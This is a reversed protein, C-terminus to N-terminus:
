GVPRSERIFRAVEDALDVTITGQRVLSGMIDSLKLVSHVQVGHAALNDVGGQERDILVIAHSVTLGAERLRDVTTRTSGGSTVLDEIIVVSEGATWAGEIGRQLGYNKVEKRPYIMPVGSALSVATGIPLAAYPVGAIRDAPLADLIGAYSDAVASLLQPESVLLRLDIYIPSQIGSALTFEGFQVAGLAVLKASLDDVVAPATPAPKAESSTAAYSRRADNLEDRYRRAADGPDYALSIGRSVNVLLGLGDDRLGANLTAQVDGGQAGIGPVLFWAHPAVSRVSALSAPFTAGVVLGINPAWSVAGRAVHIYLPQNAERDLTQWDSIELEQFDSSGPNSTRCLVFLGKNPYALFPDISDRGLYANLTVADVRLEEFCARAYAAATSGIDGRKADLIVPIGGPIAELTRRLMALGDIGLAEYFAINPKFALAYDACAEIVALNWNLLQSAIPLSADAFRSPLDAPNPDLGVCLLSDVDEIRSTLKEHFSHTYNPAM